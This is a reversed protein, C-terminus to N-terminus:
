SNAWMIRRPFLLSPTILFGTTTPKSTIDAREYPDTRINFMKPVRLGIVGLLAPPKFPFRWLPNYLIKKSLRHSKM